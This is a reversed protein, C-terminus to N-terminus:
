ELFRLTYGGSDGVYLRLGDTTTGQPAYFRAASVTGDAGGPPAVAGALTTVTANAIVIRRLVQNNNDGVYLSTGDTSIGAPYNFRSGLGVGDTTGPGGWVGAFTTVAATAIVIQRIAHNDTVY